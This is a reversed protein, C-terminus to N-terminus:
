LFKDYLGSRNIQGLPHHTYRTWGAHYPEATSGEQSINLFDGAAATTKLAM